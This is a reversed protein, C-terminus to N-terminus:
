LFIRAEQPWLSEDTGPLPKGDPMMNEPINDIGLKDSLQKIKCETNQGGKCYLYQFGDIIVQMEKYKSYKNIFPCEETIPCNYM